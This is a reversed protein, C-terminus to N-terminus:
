PPGIPHSFATSWNVGDDSRWVDHTRSVSLGGIVFLEDNHGLLVPSNRGSFPAAPTDQQWSVGDVTSWVDSFRTNTFYDDSNYGATLYIRGNVVAAATEMRAAFPPAPLQTWNRGDTSRWAEQLGTAPTTGNPTASGAFLWLANNFAVLSHTYRPSFAANARELVWSAGDASSWVDNYRQNGDSGGVVWMRGNFVAAEHGARPAFTPGSPMHQTWTVGDASSWVDNYFTETGGENTFFDWGGIVWLRDNFALVRQSDRPSFISGSTTVRSWTLGDASRWVDSTDLGDMRGGGILWMAGNFVVGRSLLNASFDFPALETWSDGTTTQWVQNSYSRLVGGIFTVRNPEQVVGQLWSRDMETNLAEQTWSVGDTTSWADNPSPGSTTGNFRQGGFIWLRNNVVFAAHQHRAAFPNAPVVPTWTIGDASRWVDNQAVRNNPSLVRAGAIFWLNNGYATLSAYERPIGGDIAGVASQPTWTVGDSSSFSRGSTVIWMQNSFVTAATAAVLTIPPLGTSIQTWSVGDTSRWVENAGTGNARIGGLLWIANNYVLTKHLWRTGFAANATELRWTKGDSSSWIDSQPIHQTAQNPVGPLVPTAGAIVWYRNNFFVAGHLIRESFRRANAVVPVGSTAGDVIAYYAPTTLTARNDLVSAGSVPNSDVNTCNALNDAVLTCDTVRARGFERGNATAPLFVESAQEGVWAHVSGASQVNVVYTTQAANYNADAAKTATITASGLGAATAAGTTANVTVANTNNSAYTIAGTGAGGSAANDTTTNLVVNRAGTVAFAITQTGPTVQLQYTATASNFGSSAAKTATITATGTGVLTAVGTTSSVTAVTDSSSAYTVAGTGAGGSAVNTVTTGVAGTVPGGTAFAITQPQPPPQQPPGGGGGGGCASVLLALSMIGAYSILTRFIM